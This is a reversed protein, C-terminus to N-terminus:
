NLETERVNLSIILAHFTDLYPTKEPGYKGVNQSFKGIERPSYSFLNKSIHSTCNNHPAIIVALVVFNFIQM